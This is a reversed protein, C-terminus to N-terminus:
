LFYNGVKLKIQTIIGINWKALVDLRCQLAQKQLESTALLLEVM